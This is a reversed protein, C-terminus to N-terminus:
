SALGLGELVAEVVPALGRADAAVRLDAVELYLPLRQARLEALRGRPDGALLPRSSADGVRVAAVPVSVDLFVVPHHADLLARAAETTVIGGGTSIVVPPESELASRLAELEHRRFAAEGEREFLETISSGTVAEVVEDTDVVRADLREALRGAVASKGAGMLGVLVIRLSASV